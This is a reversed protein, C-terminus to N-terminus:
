KTMMMMTIMVVRMAVIAIREIADTQTDTHRDQEPQLKKFVQGLFRMKAHLYM